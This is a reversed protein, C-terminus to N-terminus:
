FYRLNFVRASIRVEEELKQRPCDPLSLDKGGGRDLRCTCPATKLCRSEPSAYGAGDFSIIKQTKMLGSDITISFFNPLGRSIKSHGHHLVKM